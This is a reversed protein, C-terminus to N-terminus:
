EANEAETADRLRGPLHPFARFNIWNQFVTQCDETFRRQCSRVYIFRDGAAIDFPQRFYLKLEKTASDWTRIVNKLGANAGSIWHITGTEYTGNAGAIATGLFTRRDTVSAVEDYQLPAAMAKWVLGNDLSYAGVATDWTSSALGFSEQPDAKIPRDTDFFWFRLNDFGASAASNGVPSKAKLTVKCQTALAPITFDQTIDQWAGTIGGFDEDNMMTYSAIVASAANLFQLIVTATSANSFGVGISFRGVYKGLLVRAADLKAHTLTLPFTQTITHETQVGSGDDGGCLFKDIDYDVLGGEATTIKWWSGTTVWGTITPSLANAVNGNYEFSNNAPKYQFTDTYAVLRSLRHVVGDYPTGATHDWWYCRVNDAGFNLVTGDEKKSMIYIRVTRTNPYLPFVLARERWEEEADFTMWRSDFSSVFEGNTDFLEARIRVPDLLYTLQALLAWYGFSIKGDDIDTANIGAAVLDIDQYVVSEVGSDADGLADESGYLARTGDAPSLVGALGPATNVVVFTTSGKEWGPITGGVLVNSTDFSPNTLTIANMLATDYRYVWDGMHYPNYVSYIQSQDVAVKCRRDGFDADCTPQYQRGVEFDLVKLLGTVTCRVIGHENRQISGFWGRRLTLKGITTDEYDVDFIEVEAFDFLGLAFEEKTFLTGDAYLTMETNDISLSSDSSVAAIQFPIDHRYTQGDIELDSDHSTLRYPKGDRRTIVVCTALTVVNRRIATQLATTISKSM